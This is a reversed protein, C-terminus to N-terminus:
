WFYWQQTLIIYIALGLNTVGHALICSKLNRTKVLYAGYLIGTLLTGPWEWSKHVLTFAIVTLAFSFVTFSGIPVSLFDKRIWYRMWFSRWFLEEMVPVVLAAGAIRTLIGAVRWGGAPLSSPDFTITRDGPILAASAIWLALVLLGLLVARFDWTGPIEEPRGRFCFYLVAATAATKLAYIAFVSTATGFRQLETLLMFTLFPLLYRLLNKQEAQM